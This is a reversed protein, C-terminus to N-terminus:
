VDKGEMRKDVLHLLMAALADTSLEEFNDPFPGGRKWFVADIYEQTRTQRWKANEGTVKFRRRGSDTMFYAVYYPSLYVHTKGKVRGIMRFKFHREILRLM